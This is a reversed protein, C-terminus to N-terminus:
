EMGEMRYSVQPIEYGDAMQAEDSYNVYIVIGNDYTVKRVDNDLIEHNVIRAGTVHKLAGNVQQYIDIAEKKWVDYTTAYYRSLGTNKMKSSEKWTFVYHPAAGSEIMQLVTETM